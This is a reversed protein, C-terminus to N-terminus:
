MCKLWEGMVGVDAMEVDLRWIWVIWRILIVTKKSTVDHPTAPLGLTFFHYPYLFFCYWTRFGSRVLLFLSFAPLICLGKFLRKGLTPLPLTTDTSLWNLVVGHLRIPPTSTYIWIKKVEGNTPPSYDAERGPRKVGQFSGGTCM